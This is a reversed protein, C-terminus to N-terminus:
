LLTGSLIFLAIMFYIVIGSVDVITAVLPASSVAPDVKCSKLLIPLMSGILSGWLVVGILSFFITVAVLLWHAGYITSFASWISVRAFGIFGLICGLFLGSFIERRMIRWWDKLKVEGLAMARIILTTSQSGANGGSSIILPLFLALVVAKSIEDEFFGMATATFMEGIFLLTLWKARKKIISMFPAEMYPEDLAEMGGINQLRETQLESSLRLIDDMTVIGKLVGLEDVVPLAARNNKKFQNIAFVDKDLTKLAIFKGNSIQKVQCNKPAFLFEKIYLDDLLVNLDDVIYIFNITESDHGYARIYDLVQDITWDMKVALYDTTMLRGVSDEPYGLLDLAICREEVPLLMLYEDVILRPLEALLGTRDDPAMLALMNAIQSPPLSHLITKQIGISLHDFTDVAIEPKLVSFILIQDEKINTSILDAIEFSSLENISNELAQLDHDKIMQHISLTPLSPM